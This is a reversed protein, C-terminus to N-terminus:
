KLFKRLLQSFERDFNSPSDETYDSSHYETDRDPDGLTGKDKYGVGIFRESPAKPIEYRELTVFFEVPDGKSPIGLTTTLYQLREQYGQSGLEPPVVKQIQQRAAPLRSSYNQLNKRNKCSFYFIEVVALKEDPSLLKWRNRALIDLILFEDVSVGKFLIKWLLNKWIYKETKKFSYRREVKYTRGQITERPLQYKLVTVRSIEERSLQSAEETLLASESDKLILSDCIKSINRSIAPQAKEQPSNRRTSKSVGSDKVGENLFLAMMAEM